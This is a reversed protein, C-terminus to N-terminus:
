PIPPSPARLFNVERGDPTEMVGYCEDLITSVRVDPCCGQMKAESRLGNVYEKLKTRAASFAEDIARSLNSRDQKDITLDNGPLDLHIRVRGAKAIVIFRLRQLYRTCGPLRNVYDEFDRVRQGIQAEIAATVPEKSAIRLQLKREVVNVKFASKTEV